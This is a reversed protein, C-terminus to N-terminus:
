RQIWKHKIDFGTIEALEAEMRDMYEKGKARDVNVAIEEQLYQVGMALADLRDDHKLCNRELTINCFQSMFKEDVLLSRKCVLKQQNLIPELTDIIRKEKQVYNKIPTIPYPLNPQLLNMIISDGFNTEVLIENVRYEEALLKIDEVRNKDFGDWGGMGLVFIFSNRTGLVCWAFEDSGSGAPDLVLIKKTYPVEYGKARSQRPGDDGKAERVFQKLKEPHQLYEEQCQEKTFYENIILDSIHLPFKTRDTLATNLMWQLQFATEGIAKRRKEVDKNKFRKPEINTGKPTFIPFKYVKYGKNPLSNYVSSSSHPTALYYITGGPLLISEFENSLHVIKQRAEASMSNTSIEIDDAIIKTARSGTIQGTLGKAELSPTQSPLCGAVDFSFSLNSQESSPSMHSLFPCAKITSKCFMVFESARKATASIVLIKEEPEWYLSYLAFLAALHSKGCGRFAQICLRKTNGQLLTAIKDQLKTPKPLGLYKHALFIFNRFDKLEKIQTM